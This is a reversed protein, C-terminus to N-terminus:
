KGQNVTGAIFISGSTFSAAPLPGGPFPPRGQVFGVRAVITEGGVLHIQQGIPQATGVHLIKQNESFLFSPCTLYAPFTFSFSTPTPMAPAFRGTRLRAFTKLSFYLAFRSLSMKVQGGFTKEFQFTTDFSLSPTVPV